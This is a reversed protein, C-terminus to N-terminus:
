ASNKFTENTKKWIEEYTALKNKILIESLVELQARMIALKYTTILLLEKLEQNSLQTIQQEFNKLIAKDFPEPKEKTKKIVKKKAM